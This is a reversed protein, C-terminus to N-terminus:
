NHRYFLHMPIPGIVEETDPDIIEKTGMDVTLGKKHVNEIVWQEMRDLDINPDDLYSYPGGVMHPLTEMEEMPPPLGEDIISTATPDPGKYQSSYERPM